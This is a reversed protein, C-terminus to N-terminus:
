LYKVESEIKIKENGDVGCPVYKITEWVPNSVLLMFLTVVAGLMILYIIKIRYGDKYGRQYDNM